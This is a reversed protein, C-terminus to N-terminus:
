CYIMYLNRNLILGCFSMQVSTSQSTVRRMTLLNDLRSCSKAINQSTLTPGIRYFACNQDRCLTSVSITQELIAMNETSNRGVKHRFLFQRRVTIVLVDKIRACNQDSDHQSNRWKPRQATPFTPVYDMSQFLGTTKDSCSFLSLPEIRTHSTTDNTESKLPITCFNAHDKWLMEKACQKGKSDNQFIDKNNCQSDFAKGLTSDILFTAILTLLTLFMNM